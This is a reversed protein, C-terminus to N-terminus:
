QNNENDDAKGRLVRLIDDASVRPPTISGPASGPILNHLGFESPGNRFKSWQLDRQSSRDGAHGAASLTWGYREAGM